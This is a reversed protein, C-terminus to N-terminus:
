GKQTYKLYNIGFIVGNDSSPIILKSSAITITADNRHRWRRRWRSRFFLVLSSDVCLPSLPALPTHVNLELVTGFPVPCICLYRLFAVESVPCDMTAGSMCISFVRYLAAIEGHFQYMTIVRLKATLRWSSIIHSACKVLHLRVAFFQVSKFVTKYRYLCRQM